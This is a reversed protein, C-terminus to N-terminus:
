TPDSAGNCWIVKGEDDRVEITSNGYNEDISMDESTDDIYDMSLDYDVALDEGTTIEGSKLKEIIEKLQEPSDVDYAEWITVKIEVRAM